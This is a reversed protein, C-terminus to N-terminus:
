DNTTPRQIVSDEKRRRYGGDAVAAAQHGARHAGRARARAPAHAAHQPSGAAHIRAAGGERRGSGRGGEARRADGPQDPCRRSPPRDRQGQDPGRGGAQPALRHGRDARRNRRHAVAARRRRDQARLGRGPKRRRSRPGGQHARQDPSDAGGRGQGGHRATGPERHGPHEARAGDSLQKMEALRTEVAALKREGFAVQARRGELQKFMTEARALQDESAQIQGVADRQRSQVRDLEGLLEDKISSSRALEESLIQMQRAREAVDVAVAKSVVVLEAYRKQQEAVTAEDYKVSAIREHATEIQTRLVNIEAVLPVLRTQLAHVDVLKNQADVMQEALGDCAAKLTELEARRVLQDELKRDVDASVANLGNLRGELTEVFPVRATVRTLQADLEAVTENLRTAKLTGEEVLAMKGLIADMKAELEPARTALATMRENFAELAVRDAGLKDRLKVIEVHSKYFDQIEQRLSELDHRSQRLSDMHVVTRKSLEDVQGLQEHLTDLALQKKTLDDAQAFLADFRKTLGDVKQSLSILNKDKASLAEMRTEADGVSGQLARVREDFSDFEKKRVTLTGVESRLIELLSTSDKQLKTTERQVEQNLKAAAEMRLATDAALKDIRGITEEAKAAQKMGENLKTIQVDMSWVMENVRNAEVVAHEVAQQQSDLAKAKRSVHEALANLGALREETNRSLEHLQALPVLKKEIEKVTAMATTTDERAERSTERIKGYDQTLSSATARIQDLEGKLTSAQTTAQTVRNRRQAPPRSARRARRTGEQPHRAHGADAAGALLPEARGRSAEPARRGPRDGEADGARGTEGRGEAGSHAQRDDELERARDDLMSIRKTLEDLKAGASAAKESVQELSKGLPVLKASRATLTTLMTSLASREERAASILLQLEDTQKQVQKGKGGAISRFADLM